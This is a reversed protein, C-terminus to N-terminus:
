LLTQATVNSITGDENISIRIGVTGTASKGNITNRVTCLLFYSMNKGDNSLIFTSYGSLSINANMDEDMAPMFSTLLRSDETFKWDDMLTQRVKDYGRKGEWNLLLNAFSSLLEDNRQETSDWDLESVDVPKDTVPIVLDGDDDETIGYMLAEAQASALLGQQKELEATLSSKTAQGKIWVVATLVAIAAFAIKLRVDAGTPKETTETEKEENINRLRPGTKGEMSKDVNKGSVKM